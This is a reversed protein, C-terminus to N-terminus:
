GHGSSTPQRRSAFSASARLEQRHAQLASIARARESRAQLYLRSRRLLGRRPRLRSAIRGLIIQQPRFLAVGSHASQGLSAFLLSGLPPAARRVPARRRLRRQARSRGLRLSSRGGIRGSCGNGCRCRGSSLSLGDGVLGAAGAGAAWRGNPVPEKQRADPWCRVADATRHDRVRADADAPLSRYASQEGHLHDASSCRCEARRREAWPDTWARHQRPQLWCASWSAGCARGRGTFSASSSSERPPM